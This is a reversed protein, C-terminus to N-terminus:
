DIKEILYACNVEITSKGEKDTYTKKPGSIKIVDGAQIGLEAFSKDNKLDIKKEKTLGYVYVTGTEDTLDFNGYVDNKIEGVTGTLTYWVDDADPKTLFEAVTVEGGDKPEAPGSGQSVIEEIYGNEFEPTVNDNKAYAKLPGVIKLVSGIAPVQDASTFKVNGVNNTYYCGIEGTADQVMININGYKVVNEDSTKVKTLTAQIRYLETTKAGPELANAIEIAQAVTVDKIEGTPPNPNEGQKGINPNTSAVINAAGKGVTEPTGNYNTIEGYIVVYDGVAIQDASALKAGDIGKVQYAVFDESDYTGDTKQHEAMYFQANGYKEIDEAIKGGLKKVWGHIYYKTGSTAGSELKLAIDRAESVTIAGAPLTISSPIAVYETTEGGGPNTGPDTGPDTGPKTPEEPPNGCSALAVAAVFMVASFFKNIKM